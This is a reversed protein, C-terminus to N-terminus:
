DCITADTASDYTYVPARWKFEETLHSARLIVRLVRLETPFHGAEAFVRELGPDADAM